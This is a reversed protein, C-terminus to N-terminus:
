PGSAVTFTWTSSYSGSRAKAPVALKSTLGIDAPGIGTGVAAGVIKAGAPPTSGAPLTLAGQNSWSGGGNTTAM